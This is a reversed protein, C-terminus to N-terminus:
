SVFQFVTDDVFKESVGFFLDIISEFSGVGFFENMQLRPDLDQFFFVFFEVVSEGLHLFLVGFELLGVHFEGFYDVLIVVFFIGLNGILTEFDVLWIGNRSRNLIFKRQGLGVDFSDDGLSM